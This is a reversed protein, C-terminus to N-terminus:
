VITVGACAPTWNFAAQIRTQALIVWHFYPDRDLLIKVRDIALTGPITTPRSRSWYQNGTSRDVTIFPCESAAPSSRSEQWATSGVNGNNGPVV